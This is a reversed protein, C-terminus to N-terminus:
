KIEKKRKVEMRMENEREIGWGKEQEQKQIERGKKRIEGWDSMGLLSFYQFYAPM